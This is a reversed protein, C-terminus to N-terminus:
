TRRLTSYQSVTVNLLGIQALQAHYNSILIMQPLARGVFSDQPTRARVCRAIAQAGIRAAWRIQDSEIRDSRVFRQLGASARFHLTSRNCRADSSREDSACEDCARLRGEGEGCWVM